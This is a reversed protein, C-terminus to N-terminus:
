LCTVSSRPIDRVFPVHWMYSLCTVVSYTVYSHTIECIFSDHWTHILWKVYSHTMDRILSDHWVHILKTGHTGCIPVGLTSCTRGAKWTHRQPSVVPLATCTYRVPEHCLENVHSTVWKYTVYSMWMHCSENMHSMVWEHSIWIPTRHLNVLCTRSIVWGYTVHSMFVHCSENMRSHPALTVSCTRSMDWEYTHCSENM